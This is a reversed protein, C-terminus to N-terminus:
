KDPHKQRYRTLSAEPSEYAEQLDVSWYRLDDLLIRNGTVACTVYAGPRVVHYEGDGYVIEAEGGTNMRDIRNM